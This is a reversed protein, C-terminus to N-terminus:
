RSYPSFEGHYEISAQKYAEHADEKTEFTGLHVRYGNVLISSSWRRDRIHYHAGKLDCRSNTTNALNQGASAVRLNCRRNDLPNNNIHDTVEGSQLARGLVRELIVRHMWVHHKKPLTATRRAYIRGNIGVHAYWVLASLDSDVPDILVCHGKTLEVIIPTFLPLQKLDPSNTHDNM